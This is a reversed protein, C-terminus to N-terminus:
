DYDYDHDHDHDHDCDDYDCDYDYKPAWFIFYKCDQATNRLRDSGTSKPRLWYKKTPAPVKQDSGYGTYLHSPLFM